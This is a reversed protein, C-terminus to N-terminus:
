KTIGHVYHKDSKEICGRFYSFIKSLEVEGVALDERSYKMSLSTVHHSYVLNVGIDTSFIANVKNKKGLYNLLKTAFDSYSIDKEGSMHYIGSLRNNVIKSIAIVSDQFRIPSFFLDKFATIEKGSRIDSIWQDFPKTSCDINKTMRFISLLHQKNLDSSIKVIESETKYKMAAYEFGPNPTDKENSVNDQSQFVTNSSVFCTLIDNKLLKQILKPISICNINYAYDYDNICYDYKTVGGMIIAKDVGNPIEFNNVFLLDLYIYNDKKSRDHDRTTLVAEGKELKVFKQALQSDGGVILISM